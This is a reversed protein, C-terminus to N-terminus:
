YHKRSNTKNLTSPNADKTKQVSIESLFKHKTKSDRPLSRRPPIVKGSAQDTALLSPDDEATELNNDLLEADLKEPVETIKGVDEQEIGTIEGEEEEQSLVSFRSNSLIADQGYELNLKTKDPSRCAKGPSVTSWGAEKQDEQDRWPTNEEVAVNSGPTVAPAVRIGVPSSPATQDEVPVEQVRSEVELRPTAQDEKEPETEKVKESETEKEKESGVEKEKTVDESIVVMQKGNGLDTQLKEVLCAKAMHGWKNCNSCKSPLWPYIFEVLTEKGKHNFKMSRPLDKTLDAIVFIKAVKMNLCQATEPHLRKPEGVPSAVFSLGKWSYMSIPVNKMHVWMPIAKEEQQVEDPFPSWKSMVVPVEALNWMGRRLVRGRVSPNCIRFKMTTANIPFVEVMQSKDGETWIKNVIAHIKAIHPAKDLFKGILFDEWLPASDIFVEEPVDVSQVGDRVSVEVDYKKLGSQGKEVVSVWSGKTKQSQTVVKTVLLDGGEDSPVSEEAMPSGIDSAARHRSSTSFRSARIASM